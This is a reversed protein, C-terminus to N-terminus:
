GRNAQTNDISVVGDGDSICTSRFSCYACQWDRGQPDLRIPWLDDGIAVRQGLLGKDINAGIADLRAIEAQALVLWEKRSLHFEAMVRNLDGIEMTSAKQVSLAEFTLSGLIVTDITIGRAKEIGLANMGAQAIASKKPGEGDKITGRMRNWGVQKDFSFTGM